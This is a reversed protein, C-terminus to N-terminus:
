ETMSIINEKGKFFSKLKEVTIPVKLLYRKENTGKDYAITEVKGEVNIRTNNSYLYLIAMMDSTFHYTTSFEAVVYYIRNGQGIDERKVWLLINHISGKMQLINGTQLSAVEMQIQVSNTFEVVTNDKFYNFIDKTTKKKCSSLLLVLFIGLIIVKRM